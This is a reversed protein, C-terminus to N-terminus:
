PPGSGTHAERPERLATPRSPQRPAGQTPNVLVLPRHMFDDGLGLMKRNAACEAEIEERTKGKEQDRIWKPTKGFSM